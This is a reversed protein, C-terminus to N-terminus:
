ENRSRFAGIQVGTLTANRLIRINLREFQYVGNVSRGTQGLLESLHFAGKSLAM